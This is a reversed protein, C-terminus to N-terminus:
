LQFMNWYVHLFVLSTDNDLYMYYYRIYQVAFYAINVDIISRDFYLKNCVRFM